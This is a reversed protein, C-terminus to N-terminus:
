VVGQNAALEALLERARAPEIHNEIANQTFVEGHTWGTAVLKLAAYVESVPADKRAAVLIQTREVFGPKRFTMGIEPRTSLPPETRKSM